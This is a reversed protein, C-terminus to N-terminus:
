PLPPSPPHVTSDEIADDAILEADARREARYTLICGALVLLAAAVALYLGLGRSGGGYQDSFFRYGVLTTGIVAAGLSLVPHSLVAPLRLSETQTIITVLAITVFIVYPVVGSVPYDFANDDRLGTEDFSYSWWPLLGAIFFLVGGIAKLWAGIGFRNPELDDDPELDEDDM